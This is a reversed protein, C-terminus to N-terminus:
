QQGSTEADLLPDREVEEADDITADPAPAPAVTPPPAVVVPTVKSTKAVYTCLAGIV